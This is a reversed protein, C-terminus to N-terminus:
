RLDDSVGVYQWSIGRTKSSTGWEQGLNGELNQPPDELKEEASLVSADMDHGWGGLEGM